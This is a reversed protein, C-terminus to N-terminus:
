ELWIVERELDIGFRDIVATRMKEILTFIDSSNVPSEALIINAHRESVYAGGVRFSKAGAEELLKGAKYGPPNKFVSGACRLGAMWKRKEFFSEAQARIDSVTGRSFRFGARVITLDDLGIVQRY